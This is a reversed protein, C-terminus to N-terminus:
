SRAHRWLGWGLGAPRAHAARMRRAGSHREMRAGKAAEHRQHDDAKHAVKLAHEDPKLGEM